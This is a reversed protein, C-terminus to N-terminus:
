EHSNGKKEYDSMVVDFNDMSCMLYDVNEKVKRAPNGAISCYSKLFNGMVFAGTGVICNSAIVSSPGITVRRGLWVHDGIIIRNENFLKEGTKTDFVDVGFNGFLKIKTSFMCDKGIEIASNDDIAQIFAGGIYTGSGISVKRYNRKSTLIIHVDKLSLRNGLIVSNNNGEILIKIGSLKSREGITVTNNDGSIFSVSIGEITSGTVDILESDKYM